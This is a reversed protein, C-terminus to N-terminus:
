EPTSVVANEVAAGNGGEEGARGAAVVDAHETPNWAAACVRATDVRQAALAGVRPADATGASNDDVGIEGHIRVESGM